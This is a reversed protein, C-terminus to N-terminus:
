TEARRQDHMTVGPATELSVTKTLDNHLRRGIWETVPEAIPKQQALTPSGFAGLAVVDALVFARRAPKAPQTSAISPLAM